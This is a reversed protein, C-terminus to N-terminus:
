GAIKRYLAKAGAALAAGVVGAAIGLLVLLGLGPISISDEKEVAM